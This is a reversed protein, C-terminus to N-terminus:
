DVPILYNAVGDSAGHGSFYLFGIVNAGAERLRRVHANVAQHLAALGADRLVAVEFGLRKLSVELLAVDNHPNSLRGVASPYGENGILLAFRKQAQAPNGVTCIGIAVLVILLPRM